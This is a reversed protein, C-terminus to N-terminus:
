NTWVKSDVIPHTSFDEGYKELMAPDYSEFYTRSRQSIYEGDKKTHVRDYVDRYSVGHKLEEEVILKLYPFISFLPSITIHLRVM